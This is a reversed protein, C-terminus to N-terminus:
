RDLLLDLRNRHNRGCTKIIIEMRFHSRKGVEAMRKSMNTLVVPLGRLELFRAMNASSIGEVIRPSVIQLTAVAARALAVAAIFRSILLM